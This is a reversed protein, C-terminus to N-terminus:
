KSTYRENDKKTNNVLIYRENDIIIRHWSCKKREIVWLVKVTAYSCTYYRANAPSFFDVDISFLAVNSLSITSGVSGKEGPQLVLYSFFTGRGAQRRALLWLLVLGHRTGFYKTFFCYIERWMSDKSM